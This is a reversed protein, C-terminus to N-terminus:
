ASTYDDCYEVYSQAPRSKIFRFSGDETNSPSVELAWLNETQPYNVRIGNKYVVSKTVNGSEDWFCREGNLKGNVYIFSEMLKGTKEDYRSWKGDPVGNKYMLSMTLVGSKNYFNSYGIKVGNSDILTLEEPNGTSANFVMFVKQANAVIPFISLVVLMIIMRMNAPM